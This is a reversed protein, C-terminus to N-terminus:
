KNIEEKLMEVYSVEDDVWGSLWGNHFLEKAFKVSPKFTITKDCDPLWVEQGDEKVAKALREIVADRLNIKM